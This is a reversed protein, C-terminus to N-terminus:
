RRFEEIHMRGTLTDAFGGATAVGFGSGAGHLKEFAGTGALVTWSKPIPHVFVDSGPEDFQGHVRVLLLFTGSADDCTFERGVLMQLRRESQFGAIHVFIDTTHGSTCIPGSATFTGNTPGEDRVVLDVEILVEAPRTAEAPTAAQATVLAGVMVFLCLKRM